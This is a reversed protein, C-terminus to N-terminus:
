KWFNVTGTDELSQCSILDNDFAAASMLETVVSTRTRRERGLEEELLVVDRVPEKMESSTSTSRVNITGPSTSTRALIHKGKESRRGKSVMKEETVTPPSTNGPSQTTSAEDEKVIERAKSVPSNIGMSLDARSEGAGGSKGNSMRSLSFMQRDPVDVVVPLPVASTNDVPSLVYM